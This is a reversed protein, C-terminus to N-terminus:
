PICQSLPTFAFAESTCLAPKTSLSFVFCLFSKWPPPIQLSSTSSIISCLSFASWICPCEWLCSLPPGELAQSPSLSLFLSASSVHCLQEPELKGRLTFHWTPSYPLRIDNLLIQCCWFRTVQMRPCLRPLRGAGCLLVTLMFSGDLASCSYRPLLSPASALEWVVVWASVWLASM